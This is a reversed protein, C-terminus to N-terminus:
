NQQDVWRIIPEKRPVPPPATKPHGLIVPAIPVYEAPLDLTAKGEPTGIWSQAFGIWCSGLGMAHAALMLNEAALACDEIDWQSSAITSIVVLVPAHYFIHFNPDNLLLRFHAPPTGAPLTALMHKKAERSIRDLLQQDNVVTFAWPQRNVASPAQIAADVLRRLEGRDIPKDTFERVSRRHFIAEIIDM